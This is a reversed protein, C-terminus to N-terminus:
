GGITVKFNNTEFISKINEIEYDNLPMLNEYYYELGLRKYKQTMINHYPLIDVSVINKLDKIFNLTQHLNEGDNIGPIIPIRISINANNKSLFKLNELIRENPVGCIQQHIESNMHKLDYLFIDTFPIIDELNNQTTYGTTDVATHIQYDKCIKLMELLFDKQVLPEGGSFTVGGGSEDYFLSDKLILNTLEDTTIEYGLIELAETPCVEVCKGCIECKESNIEIGYDKQIITESHCNNVCIGCNICKNAYYVLEFHKKRSEPNHCWGCSLPCGKLFVTTRIGQGDNIAFRKIDFVIGKKM